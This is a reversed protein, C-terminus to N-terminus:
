IQMNLINDTIYRINKSMDEMINPIEFPLIGDEVLTTVITNFARRYLAQEKDSYMQMDGNIFPLLRMIAGTIYIEQEDLTLTRDKDYLLLPQKLNENLHDLQEQRLMVSYEVYDNTIQVLYGRKELTEREYKQIDHGVEGGYSVIKHNVVCLRSKYVHRIHAIYSAIKGTNNVKYVVIMPIYDEHPVRRQIDAMVLLDNWVEPKNFKVQQLIQIQGPNLKTLEYLRIYNDYWTKEPLIKKERGFKERYLLEWLTDDRCIRAGMTSTECYNLLEEPSLNILINVLTEEPFQSLEM